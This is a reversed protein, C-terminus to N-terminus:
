QFVFGLYTIFSFSEFIIPFYCTFRFAFSFCIGFCFNCGKVAPSAPWSAPRFRLGPPLYNNWSLPSLFALAFVPILSLFSLASLIFVRIIHSLHTVICLIYRSINSSFVLLGLRFVCTLFFFQVPRCAPRNPSGFGM